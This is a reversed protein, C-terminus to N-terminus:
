RQLTSEDVNFYVYVPDTQVITALLTNGDAGVLNGVSIRSRDIKGTIPAAIKTFGLDINAQELSATASAVAATATDVNAKSQIVDLKSAANGRAMEEKIALDAKSKELGAQAAQLSAKAKDVEAQFVDPEIEFLLDGEKVQAGDEFNVKQLFGKVRARLDVSAVADTRGTFQFFDSVKEQVPKSVTVDTPAVPVASAKKADCGGLLGAVALLGVSAWCIGTHAMTM